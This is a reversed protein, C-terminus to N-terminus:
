TRQAPGAPVSLHEHVVLWAQRRKELVVTYRLDLHDTGGDKKAFDGHLIATAWALNGTHHTRLGESTLKLSRYAALAKPVEAAIEPWGTYKMPAVDFFVLSPDKAYFPAARAPDLDSWAAFMKELTKRIGADAPTKQRKATKM